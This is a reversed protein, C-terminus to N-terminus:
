IRPCSETSVPKSRRKTDKEETVVRLRTRMERMTETTTTAIREQCQSALRQPSGRSGRAFQDASRRSTSSSADWSNANMRKSRQPSRGQKTATGTTPTWRM